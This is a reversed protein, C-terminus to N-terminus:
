EVVGCYYDGVHRMYAAHLRFSLTIGGCVLMRRFVAQFNVSRLGAWRRFIGTSKFEWWRFWWRKGLAWFPAFIM